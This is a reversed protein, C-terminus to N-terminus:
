HGPAGAPGPAAESLCVPRLFRIGAPWLRGPPAASATGTTALAQGPRSAVLDPDATLLGVLVVECEGAKGGALAFAVPVGQMVRVLCLRLGPFWRSHGACYGCRGTWALWFV